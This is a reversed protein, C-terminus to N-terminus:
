KGGSLFVRIGQAHLGLEASSGIGVQHLGPLPVRPKHAATTALSIFSLNQGSGRSVGPKIVVVEGVKGSGLQEKLQSPKVLAEAEGADQVTSRSQADKASALTGSSVELPAGIDHKQDHGRKDGDDDDDDDDNNDDDDDDDDDTEARSEGAAGTRKPPPPAPRRAQTDKDKHIISSAPLTMIPVGGQRRTPPVPPASKKSGLALPASVGFTTKNGSIGTASGANLGPGFNENM